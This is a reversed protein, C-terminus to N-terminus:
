LVGGASASLADLSSVLISHNLILTKGCSSSTFSHELIMYLLSVSALPFTATFNNNMLYLMRIRRWQLSSM